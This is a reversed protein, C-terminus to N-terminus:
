WLLSTSYIYLYSAYMHIYYTCLTHIYMRIVQILLDKAEMESKFKENQTTHEECNMVMRKMEIACLM